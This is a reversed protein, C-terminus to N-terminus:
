RMSALDMLDQKYLQAKCEVFQEFATSVNNTQIKTLRNGHAWDLFRKISVYVSEM